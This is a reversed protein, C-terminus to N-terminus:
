LLLTSLNPDHKCTSRLQEPFIGLPITHCFTPFRDSLKGSLMHWIFVPFSDSVKGPSAHSLRAALSYKHFYLLASAGWSVVYPALLDRRIM